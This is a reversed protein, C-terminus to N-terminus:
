VTPIILLNEREFYTSLVNYRKFSLVKKHIQSARVILAHFLTETNSSCSMIQPLTLFPLFLSSNNVLLPSM